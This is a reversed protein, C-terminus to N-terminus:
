PAVKVPLVLYLYDDSDNVPKVICPSISSNFNLTVEKSDIARLMSIWYESNFAIDLSSGTVDASMEESADSQGSNASMTIMGPEVHMKFPNVGQQTTKIRAIISLREIASLLARNSITVCTTYGDPIVKSYEIFSGELLRATVTTRDITFQAHKDSFAMSASECDTKKLLEAVISLAARPIIAQRNASLYAAPTRTLGLRFGDLAVLTLTNANMEFLVGTLAPRSQDQATCFAVANIMRALNATQINMDSAEDIVPPKPYDDPPLTALTTKSGGCTVTLRNNTKDAILALGEDPLKNIIDAFLKGPVLVRGPDVVPTPISAQVCVMEDIGTIVLGIDTTEILVCELLPIMPKAAIVKVVTSLTSKLLGVNVKVQM